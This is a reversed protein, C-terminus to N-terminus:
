FFSLLSPAIGNYLRSIPGSNEWNSKVLNGKPNTSRGVDPHWAKNLMKRSLSILLALFAIERWCLFYKSMERKSYTRLDVFFFPQTINGIMIQQCPTISFRGLWGLIIVNWNQGFVLVLTSTRFQLSLKMHVNETPKIRSDFKSEPMFAILHQRQNDHSLRLFHM